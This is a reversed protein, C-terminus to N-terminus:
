HDAAIGKSRQCGANDSSAKRGSPTSGKQGRWSERLQTRHLAPFYSLGELPSLPNRLGFSHLTSSSCPGAGPHVNMSPLDPSVLRSHWEDAATMPYSFLEMNYQCQYLEASVQM